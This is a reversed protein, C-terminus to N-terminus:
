LASWRFQGGDRPYTFGDVMETWMRVLTDLQPGIASVLVDNVRFGPWSTVM